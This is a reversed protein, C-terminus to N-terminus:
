HVGLIWAALWAAAFGLAPAVVWVMGRWVWESQRHLPKVPVGM